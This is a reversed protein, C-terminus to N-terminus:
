FAMDIFSLVIFVPCCIAIMTQVYYIIFLGVGLQVEDLNVTIKITGGIDIMPRVYFKLVVPKGTEIGFGNYFPMGGVHLTYRYTFSHGMSVFQGLQPLIECTSSSKVSNADALSLHHSSVESTYNFSTTNGLDNKFETDSDKDQSASSSGFADVCDTSFNLNFSYVM